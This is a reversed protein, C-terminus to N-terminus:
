KWRSMIQTENSLGTSGATAGRSSREYRLGGMSTTSPMGGSVDEDEGSDLRQDGRCILNNMVQSIKGGTTVRGVAGVM